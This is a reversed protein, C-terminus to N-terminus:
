GLGGMHFSKMELYEEIGVQAGERGIGSQKVGGFPAVEMSVSGTNLGVMGFELAEGVRWARKLNDTYFYSALGFPTGNAIAIAEEETEFRFLPAVPGFTEEGALEMETTAGTLIIPATYQGGEPLQRAATIITAGKALADRVHRDIKEIAAQNIMPGISVGAETGPGVKMADVKAKLKAAFADYVGSQVLLRNACVCTQGGNRFKSALAGEVALDLDADDFVIFPANGGLELSLRKISDAAGRMLLAGVRTSGTFSIKRVTENSMIENGIATPMGTVINIVGAPIGAREALVGLALASYPTFESPKIVVACGAALAPAVKRTIMANPFNWPTIIGCVGVPEKLVIIRRDPTPSPITHGNIRRAEEAFWKVFSAGYRIEGRAEDLPKGQETTLILALDDVNELMLDHWAELLAAREANTKRKWSRQAREAAAIADRTEASGMDPVTGIATQRAPDQVDVTRGSAAAVWAGDILGKDRFLQKDKLDLM